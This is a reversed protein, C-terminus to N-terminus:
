RQPCRQHGADHIMAAPLRGRCQPFLVHLLGYQSFGRLFRTPSYGGDALVVGPLARTEEAKNKLFGHM